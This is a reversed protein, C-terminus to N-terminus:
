YSGAQWLLAGRLRQILEEDDAESPDVGLPLWAESVKVGYEYHAILIGAYSMKCRKEESLDLCVQRHQLTLSVWRAELRMSDGGSSNM